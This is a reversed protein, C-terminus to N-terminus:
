FTSCIKPKILVAWFKHISSNSSTFMPLSLFIYLWAWNFSSSAWRNRLKASCSLQIKSKYSVLYLKYYFLSFFIKRWMWIVQPVLFYFFVSLFFISISLTVKLLHIIFPQTKPVILHNTCPILQKRKHTTPNFTIM